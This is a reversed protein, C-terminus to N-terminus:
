YALTHQLTVGLWWLKFCLELVYSFEKDTTSKIVWSIEPAAAHKHSQREVSTKAAHIWKHRKTLAFRVGHLIEELFVYVRSIQNLNLDSPFYLYCFHSEVLFFYLFNFSYFFPFSSFHRLHSVCIKFTDKHQTVKSCIRSNFNFIIQSQLKPERTHYRISSLIATKFVFCKCLPIPVTGTHVWVRTIEECNATVYSIKDIRFFFNSIKASSNTLIQQSCPITGRFVILLTYSLCKEKSNRFSDCLYSKLFILCHCSTSCWFM